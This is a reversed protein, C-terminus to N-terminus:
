YDHPVDWLCASVAAASTGAQYPEVIVVVPENIAERLAKGDFPRQTYSYLVTCDMGDSFLM